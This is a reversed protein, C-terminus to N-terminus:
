HTTEVIPTQILVKYSSDESNTYVDYTVSDITQTSTTSWSNTGTNTLEVSDGADGIIKLTKETSDTMDIVDQLSLKTLSHSGANLDIIEINKIISNDLASFDINDNSGLVLTDKGGLGGDIITDNKDFVLTDDGAGGYLRDAGAGGDLYDNGTGGNLTDNGAGGYLKDNGADGNLIDNGDRGILIDNGDGGNITDNGLAGDLIDNGVAGSITDDGSTGLISDNLSTGVLNGTSDIGVGFSYSASDGDTDVISLTFDLNADPPNIVSTVFGTTVSNILFDTTGLNIVDVSTIYKGPLVAVEYSSGNINERLSITNDSYHVIMTVNSVSVSAGSNSIFGVKVSDIPKVTSEPGVQSNTLFSLTMSEKNGIGIGGTSGASGLGNNNSNINVASGLNIVGNTNTYGDHSTFKIDVDLNAAATAGDKKDVIQELYVEAGIGGISKNITTGETIYQAPSVKILNFDYTGDAKVTIKFYDDGAADKATLVTSTGDFSTATTTVGLASANNLVININQPLGNNNDAGIDSIWTGTFDGSTANNTTVASTVYTITPTDDTIKLELQTSTSDGDKDTITIIVLGSVTDAAIHSYASNQTFTYAGTTENITLTWIPTGNVLTSSAITTTGLVYNGTNSDIYGTSTTTATGLGGNYAITIPNSESAGNTGFNFNLSGIESTGIQNDGTVEANNGIAPLAISPIYDTGVTGTVNEYNGGVINHYSVTLSGNQNAFMAVQEPTLNISGKGDAGISIAILTASGDPQVYVIPKNNADYTTADPINSMQVSIVATASDTISVTINATTTDTVDNITFTKATTDVVVNELNGETASVTNAVLAASVGENEIYPDLNNATLTYSDAGTAGGITLTQTSSNGNPDTIALDVTVTKGAELTVPNGSADVLSATYTISYGNEDGSTVQNLVVTTTDVTDTVIVTGTASSDITAFGGGTTSTVSVTYSEGDVYADDGQIPFPTSAVPTGPVYDTGFTITAGNSLTIVLPTTPIQNLSASITATGTGELVTTNGVFSFVADLLPAAEIIQATEVTGATGLTTTDRLDTNIDVEAGTRNELRALLVGSSTGDAPATDGGAAAAGLKEIDQLTLTADPNPQQSDAQNSSATDLLLSENLEVNKVVTDSNLELGLMTEDFLQQNDGIVNILKSNDNLAVTLMNSANNSGSGIIVDGSNITDGVKAASVVGEASKIFFSGNIANISGIVQAM